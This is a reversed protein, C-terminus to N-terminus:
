FTETYRSLFLLLWRCRQFHSTLLINKYKKYTYHLLQLRYFYQGFSLLKKFAKVVVKSIMECLCNYRSKNYDNKLLTSYLSFQGKNIINNKADNRSFWRQICFIDVDNLSTHSQLHPRLKWQTKRSHHPRTTKHFVFQTVCNILFLRMDSDSFHQTKSEYISFMHSTNEM